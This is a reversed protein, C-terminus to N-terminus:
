VHGPVPVVVVETTIGAKDDHTWTFHDYGAIKAVDAAVDRGEHSAFYWRATQEPNNNVWSLEVRPNERLLQSFSLALPSLEYVYKRRAKGTGDQIKRYKGFECLTNQIDQVSLQVLQASTYVGPTGLEQRTPFRMGRQGLEHAQMDRLSLMYTLAERDTPPTRLGYLRQLGTLAGPGPVMFDSYFEEPWDLLTEGTSPLEYTCDVYVQSALFRGM